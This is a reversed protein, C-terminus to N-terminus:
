REDSEKRAEPEVDAARLAAEICARMDRWNDAIKDGFNYKPLLGRKVGEDVAAALMEDTCKM